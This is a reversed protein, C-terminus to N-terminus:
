AKKEDTEHGDCGWEGCEECYEHEDCGDEDYYLECKKCYEIREVEEGYEFPNIEDDIEIPDKIIEIGEPHLNTYEYNASIWVKCTSKEPFALQIDIEYFRKGDKETFNKGFGTCYFMLWSNNGYMDFDYNGYETIVSSPIDNFYEILIIEENKYKM